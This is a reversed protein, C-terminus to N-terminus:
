IWWEQLVYVEECSEMRRLKTSQRKWGIPLDDDEKLKMKPERRHEEKFIEWKRKEM